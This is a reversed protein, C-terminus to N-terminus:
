ELRVSRLLFMQMTKVVKFLHSLAFWNDKFKLLAYSTCKVVILFIDTVNFILNLLVKIM